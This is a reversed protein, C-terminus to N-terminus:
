SRSQIPCRLACGNCTAVLERLDGASADRILSYRDRLSWTRIEHLACEPPNSQTWPCATLLGLVEARTLSPPSAPAVMHPSFCSRRM